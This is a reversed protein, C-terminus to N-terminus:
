KTMLEKWMKDSPSVGTFETNMDGGIIISHQPFHEIITDIMSIADATETMCTARNSSNYFPMYVCIFLYEKSGGNLEVAVVRKHRFNSIPSILRNLDPSWSICVGGFPRGVMIGNSVSEEMGSRAIFQTKLQQLTPLQKEKLWLEQSM